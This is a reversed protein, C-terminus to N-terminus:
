TVYGFPEIVDTFYVTMLLTLVLGVLIMVFLLAFEMSTTGGRRM